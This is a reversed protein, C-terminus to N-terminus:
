WNWGMLLERCCSQVDLFRIKVKIMREGQEVEREEIDIMEPM